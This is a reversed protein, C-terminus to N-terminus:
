LKTSNANWICIRFKYHTHLANVLSFHLVTYACPCFWEIKSHSTSPCWLQFDGPVAWFVNKCKWKQFQFYCEWTTTQNIYMKYGTKVFFSFANYGLKLFCHLTLMLGHVTLVIYNLILACNINKGHLATKWIKQSCHVELKYLHSLGCQEWVSSNKQRFSCRENRM